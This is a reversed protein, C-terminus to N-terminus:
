FILGPARTTKLRSQKLSPDWVPIKRVAFIIQAARHEFPVLIIMDLGKFVNSNPVGSRLLLLKFVKAYDLLRKFRLLKANELVTTGLRKQHASCKSCKLAGHLEFYQNTYLNASWKHDASCVKPIVTRVNPEQKHKHTLFLDRFVPWMMYKVSNFQYIELVTRPLSQCGQDKRYWAIWCCCRLSWRLIRELSLKM